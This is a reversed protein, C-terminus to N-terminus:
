LPRANSCLGTLDGECCIGLGMALYKLRRFDLSTFISFLIHSFLIHCLYCLVFNLFKICEISSHDLLEARTLSLVFVRSSPISYAAQKRVSSTNCVEGGWFWYCHLVSSLLARICCDIHPPHPCLDRPLCIAAHYVPPPSVTIMKM